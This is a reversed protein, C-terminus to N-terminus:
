LFLCKEILLKVLVHVILAVADVSSSALLVVVLHSVFIFLDIEWVEVLAKVLIILVNLQTSELSCIHKSLKGM